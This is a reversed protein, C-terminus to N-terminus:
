GCDEGEEGARRGRREFSRDGDCAGERLNIQLLLGGLHEIAQPRESEVTKVFQSLIDANVRRIQASLDIKEEFTV